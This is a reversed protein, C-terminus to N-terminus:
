VKLNDQGIVVPAAVCDGLWNSAIAGVEAPAFRSFIRANLGGNNKTKGKM